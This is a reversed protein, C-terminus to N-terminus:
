AAWNGISKKSLDEQRFVGSGRGVAGRSMARGLGRHAQAQTTQACPGAASLNAKHHKRARTVLDVVTVM